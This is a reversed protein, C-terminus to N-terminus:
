PGIRAREEGTLKGVRVPLATPCHTVTSPRWSLENPDVALSLRPFRELLWGIAVEAELRALPAGVCYHIGHGFTIQGGIPRTIDLVEPNEFHRADCNAAMLAVM